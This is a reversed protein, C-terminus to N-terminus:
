GLILGECWSILLQVKWTGLLHLSNPHSLILLHTKWLLITYFVSLSLKLQHLAVLLQVTLISKCPSLIM